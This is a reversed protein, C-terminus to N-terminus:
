GKCLEGYHGKHAAIMVNPSSSAHIRGASASRARDFCVTQPDSESDESHVCVEAEVEVEVEVVCCWSERGICAHARHGGVSWTIPVTLAPRDCSLSGCPVRWLAVEQLRSADLQPLLDVRARAARLRSFYSYRRPVACAGRTGRGVGGIVGRRAGQIEDM